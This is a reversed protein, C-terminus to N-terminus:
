KVKTSVITKLIGLYQRAWVQRDYFKKVAERGREAMNYCLVKDAKLSRVAEAISIKDEPVAILGAGANEVIKKAEGEVAAVIPKGFGMAEFIKSPVATKFVSTRRLHVLVADSLGYFYRVQERPQKDIIHVNALNFLKKKEELAEKGSGAGIVLYAVGPDGVADAIDFIIDIKHADGTTGIYSLVFKGELGYQQRLARLKETNLEGSFEERDFGNRVLSIKEQGIGRRIIAEKQSESVVIIHAASRYLFFAIKELFGLLIKNKMGGVAEVSEPWLDRVEIVFSVRRLRSIVWASLAALMQPSSGVVVDFMEKIFFSHWIVSIMFSFYSLSRRIKGKNRAMYQPVRVVSVGSIKEKIFSNRYGPYVKGEPYNPIDTLVTVHDGGSAWARAHAHTRIALANTEPPFNYSVFLINM